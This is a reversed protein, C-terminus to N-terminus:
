KLKKPTYPCDWDAYGAICGYVRVYELAEGCVLCLEALPVELQFHIQSPEARRLQELSMEDVLDSHYLMGALLKPNNTDVPFVEVTSGTVSSELINKVKTRAAEDNKDIVLTKLVREVQERVIQQSTM